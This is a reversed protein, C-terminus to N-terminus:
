PFNVGMVRLDIRIEQDKSLGGRQYLQFTPSNDQIKTKPWTYPHFIM